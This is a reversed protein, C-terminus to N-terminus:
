RADAAEEAATATVLTSAVLRALARRPILRRGGVQSYALERRQMMEYLRSRGIGYERIAGEVTVSGDRLLDENADM